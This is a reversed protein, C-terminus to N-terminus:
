FFVAPSVRFRKSLRAIHAAARSRKGRLIESVISEAGFIYVLDKQCLKNADLLARLVEAPSADSVAHREREYAAVLALLLGAYKEEDSSPREKSALRNLVALYEVHQRESTIPAPANVELSYKEPVAIM